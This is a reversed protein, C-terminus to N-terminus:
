TLRVIIRHLVDVAQELNVSADKIHHYIERMRLANMPDGGKFVISMGDRYLQEVAINSERIAPIYLESKKPNKKLDGVAVTFINMGEMLKGTLKIIIENPLVDFVKMSILTSSVYELIKDMSISISYIDGRDFPTSFAEVLNEELTKRINDAEKVYQILKDNESELGSSLWDCLAEVGYGNTIAQKELMNFFDYQVPFLRDFFNKRIM